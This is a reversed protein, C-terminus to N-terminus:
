TVGGWRVSVWGPLRREREEETNRRRRGDEDEGPRSPTWGDSDDVEGKSKVQEDKSDM